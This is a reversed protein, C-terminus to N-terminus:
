GTMRFQVRRNIGENSARGPLPEVAGKGVPQLRAPDIGYDDVLIRFVSFAREWSLMLNSRKDGIADTHGEIVMHLSPVITLVTAIAHLYAMSSASVKASGAHFQVPLAVAPGEQAANVCEVATVSPAAASSGLSPVAVRDAGVAGRAKDAHAALGGGKGSQLAGIIEDASPPRDFYTVQACLPLSAVLALLGAGVRIPRASRALRYKM